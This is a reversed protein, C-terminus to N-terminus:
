QLNWPQSSLNVIEEPHSSRDGGYNFAMEIAHIIHGSLHGTASLAVMCLAAVCGIGIAYEVMSQGTAKRLRKVM